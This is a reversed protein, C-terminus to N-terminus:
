LDIHGGTRDFAYFVGKQISKAWLRALEPYFYIDRAGIYSQYEGGFRTKFQTFRRYPHFQQGEPAVGYLDYFLCGRRRAALMVEWHLVYAAMSSKLFPLTGGYLYTAKNGYFIILASAVLVGHYRAFFLEAMNSDNLTSLLNIFFSKPESLFDHRVASLEFLRYFDDLLDVANGHTVEVGLKMGRHINYRGKEKMRKLIDDESGSLFIVTTPTPVLDMPARPIDAFPNVKEVSILPAVRILPVCKMSALRGWENQLAALDEMAGKSDWNIVPGHPIEFPSTGLSSQVFYISSGGIIEGDKLLGLRIVKQGERKKFEGWAWSQMFGSCRNAKVLNDWEHALDKEIQYVHVSM